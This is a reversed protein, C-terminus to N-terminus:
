RALYEQIIRYTDRSYCDSDNFSPYSNLEAGHDLWGRVAAESDLVPIEQISSEETIIKGRNQFIFAVKKRLFLADFMASTYDTLFADTQSIARQFDDVRPDLIQFKKAVIAGTQRAISPHLVLAVNYTDALNEALAFWNDYISDPFWTPMLIVDIKKDFPLSADLQRLRDWRPM